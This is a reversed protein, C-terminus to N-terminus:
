GLAQPSSVAVTTVRRGSQQEFPPLLTDLLGSRVLGVTTGLLLRPEDARVGIPVAYLVLLPLFASIFARVGWGGRGTRPLPPSPHSAGMERPLSLPQPHPGTRM